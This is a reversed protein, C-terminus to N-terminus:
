SSAARPSSATWRSSSSTSPRSASTTAAAWAPVATGASPTSRTSSSSRRPTPRPRSSCTACGPPASASSCRSSTRAPSRSLVPVGAEGAVARALLTKGTGPPGYLLVGKPIKAGLAQYRAPNALFDRIEDLEEVAEDAGAVDTFKTAPMDKSLMKARSKGFSLVRNGGGQANNMMWFLFLLILGVPVLYLLLSFLASETTVTVDYSTVKAAKVADFIDNASDAPYQAYIKDAGDVPTKLTLRLRQEKDDILASAVNGDSLQAMAVSTTQQTYGRTDDSLYSYALYVVLAVVIWVLPSRLLRKRDM